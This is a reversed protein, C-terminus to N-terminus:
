ARRGDACIFRTCEAVMQTPIKFLFNAHPANTHATHLHHLRMAAHLVLWVPQSYQPAPQVMTGAAHIAHNNHQGDEEAEGCGQGDKRGGAQTWEANCVPPYLALQDESTGADRARHILGRGTAPAWSTAFSVLSVPTPTLLALPAPLRFAGGQPDLLSDWSHSTVFDTDFFSGDEWQWNGAADSKGGILV